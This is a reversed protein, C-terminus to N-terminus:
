QKVVKITKTLGDATVKVIYNGANLNSMDIQGQAVNLTKTMVNQGLMNYVEVSSIETAYSLNLVNKVPNPYAKFASSDFSGTSLTGDYAAIQYAIAAGGGYRWTNVYVVEGPTRTLNVMSYAGDLSDDDDCEILTLAGCTGSYVAMGTDYNGSGDNNTEVTLTGSAPITVAYWVDNGLFSACGPAPPNSNTAGLLAVAEPNESFVGGPTLVTAGSCDNNVPPTALTTFSVTTWISFTGGCDTRVHFYYTTAPALPTANFSNTAISTGAGAPDTAVQDLVYQYNGTTVNWAIDASSHTVNSAIVGTPEVCAPTLRIQMNDISFDIDAGGDATGEVARFAFRVNQGAYADLDIINTTGVNSPVNTDNYTYLATWNNLGTSVLVEVTDDSEWPTTPANTSAYQNAAADFKLEYGTAPINYVPSIVWDNASALYLNYRIAGTFGNNGFGDEGWSSTGFSAPGATLDGNDARQWCGPLFVSFDESAPVTIAGCTTFSSETCAVADGVANYPTVKVYYTTGPTLTGLNYTLVNGVDQMNLVNTGGATTGVNLKYGTAGGSAVPWSIQSGMVNVAGNAPTSLATCGPVATATFTVEVDITITVSDSYNDDDHSTITLSSFGTIDVNNFDAACGTIVSGGNVSLDFGYWDSGDSACFGSALSGAANILRMSAVTGTGNCNISSANITLVTPGGDQGSVTFTQTCTSQAFAQLGFVFFLFLLTIKKM